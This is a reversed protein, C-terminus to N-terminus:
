DTGDETIDTGDTQLEVSGGPDDSGPRGADKLDHPCPYVEGPVLKGDVYRTPKQCLEPTRKDFFAMVFFAVVAFGLGALFLVNIPWKRRGEQEATATALLYLGFVLFPISFFFLEFLIRGAL